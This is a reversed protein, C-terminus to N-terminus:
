KLRSLLLKRQLQLTEPATKGLMEFFEGERTLEQKWEDIHISTAEDVKEPAIDLGSLDLDGAKPVWGLVTEQGGVRVHARDVIWKLVRMNEGFGPWLFKGDKGKRFWNVQFVKPPYPIKAQMDLWHQLYSGMDYGCFPLMAMPDRRVVGVQGVAAATTESGLTAGLFVGHAWNFSQLVLPVTTARRGGFIIASIPVGDSDNVHRSLAPNNSM